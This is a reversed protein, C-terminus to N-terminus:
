KSAVLEWLSFDSNILPYNRATKSFPAKFLRGVFSQLISDLTELTLETQEGTVEEADDELNDDALTNDSDSLDDTTLDSAETEYLGLLALLKAVKSSSTVETPMSFEVTLMGKSAVAGNDLTEFSGGWSKTTTRYHFLLRVGEKELKVVNGESDRKVTAKGNVNTYDPTEITGTYVHALKFAGYVLSNKTFSAIETNRINFTM